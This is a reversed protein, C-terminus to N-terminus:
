DWQEKPAITKLSVHERTMEDYVTPCRVGSLFNTIDYMNVWIQCYGDKQSSDFILEMGLHLHPVNINNVNEKASYGTMGLYGIVEGANVIKGEYIDGYPHDRRLHAYYYYRKSDFSRIGIRWGGYRNWGICEVYGSEIAVIPTGVSGMLDHGLHSRKYGYSRAAGFDDYHNYYYGAAVPSVATIGYFEEAATNNNEDTVTRVGNGLFGGLVASYAEFYYNYLKKEAYKTLNDSYNEILADVKESSYDKFSGGNDVALMALLSIWSVPCETNHSNIDAKATYCLAESPINFDVWKIYDGGNARCPSFFLSAAAASACLLTCIRKARSIRMTRKAHKTRKM